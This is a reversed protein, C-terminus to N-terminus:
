MFVYDTTSKIDKADSCWISKTYGMLKCEKGKDNAPFLIDYDLTGKLYRLIRKTAALHSVKSKEMFRSMMGANYALDSRSRCLYRLSGILRQCQTPDVEDEKSDKLPKQRPEAPTSTSNCEEM